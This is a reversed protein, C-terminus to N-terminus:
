FRSALIEDTTLSHRARGHTMTLRSCSGAARNRATKSAALPSVEPSRSAIECLQLRTRFFVFRTACKRAMIRLFNNNNPHCNDCHHNDGAPPTPAAPEFGGVLRHTSGFGRESQVNPPPRNLGTSCFHGWLKSDLARM